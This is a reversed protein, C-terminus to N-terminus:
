AGTGPTVEVLAWKEFITAPNFREYYGEPYVQLSYMEEGVRGSIGHRRPMFQRWLDVTRNDLLSMSM